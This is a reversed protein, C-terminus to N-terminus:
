VLLLWAPKTLIWSLERVLLWLLSRKKHINSVIPKWSKCDSNMWVYNVWVYGRTKMMVMTMHCYFLIEQTCSTCQVYMSGWFIDLVYEPYRVDKWTVEQRWLTRTKHSYPRIDSTAVTPTRYFFTNMFIKFNECALVQTLTEKLFTAPRWM